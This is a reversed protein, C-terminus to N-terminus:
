AVVYRYFGRTQARANETILLGEAGPCNQILEIGEKVGLVFAATSLVGAQLCTDAVITAQTCGNAVPWGTRPDIIHGYRRGNREFCRVYDGSSAVGKGGTIAISAWPTGPRRPDELGIHWAPRGPPQGLARLDHGFDALVNEIGHQLAIHAVIDVAYEKGFGGFDLAMGPEPLFVRGPARQVRAWGVLRRAAAIQEETPIVPPQAKWNWLRILPLATPDLVGHTMAVLNDCLSFMREADADVEVWERGAAASIRSILSHPRFRSYKEEFAHVWSVVATEFAPSARGDPTAYQVECPTGMAPFRLRHLQTAAGLNLRVTPRVPSSSVLLSM